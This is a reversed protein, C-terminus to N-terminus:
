IFNNECSYTIYVLCVSMFFDPIQPNELNTIIYFVLWM